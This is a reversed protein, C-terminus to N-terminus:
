LHEFVMRSSDSVFLDLMLQFTLKFSNFLLEFDQDLKYDKLFSLFFDNSEVHLIIFTSTTNSSTFTFYFLAL